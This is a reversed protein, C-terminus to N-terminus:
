KQRRRLYRREVQKEQRAKRVRHNNRRRVEESVHFREQCIRRATRNDVPTGDVDRLQYPRDQKLVVYVRDLLHTACACVAQLHHKGREVIQTYYIAAIQPDWRRAVQANLFATAKVLDPGAKTIRLGRSQANGSQRSFPILGSWGRFQRLSPFRLIDGIFAIYVAASDQGIGQITELYRQPHLQRYLPRVTELRLQHVQAEADQIRAQERQLSAQLQAYDTHEPQGYFAIVRQASQILRPIWTTDVPQQPAVASWSQTLAAEGAACVHWPDYCNSRVWFAATGYAPLFSLLGLWAFQDTALLRNKSAAIQTKLRAVERCARQLAMQSASPFSCLHLREPHVLPLRALVRADIRDSKAHRQYVRRLDAVQQGSVRYVEVGHRALYSGVTFWAMGTAELVAILRVEDPAGARAITLLRDLAAPDAHFSLLKSVYRNSAQDLVIAKHAATVALDIGIIRTEM